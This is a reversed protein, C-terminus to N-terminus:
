PLMNRKAAVTADSDCEMYKTVTYRYLKVDSAWFNASLRAKIKLHALFEQPTPLQEWVQPLFTSRHPGYEFVIGDVGPQIKEIVDAEEKFVLPQISSLLSIEINIKDFEIASLSEFRPDSFAAACANAEVDDLLTRRPELSGICGRLKGYLTLTVFCAGPEDLWAASKDCPIELGFKRGIAARAIPLLTKGSAM